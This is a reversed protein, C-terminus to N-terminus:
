IDLPQVPGWVSDNEDEGLYDFIIVSIVPTVEELRFWVGRSSRSLVAGDEFCVAEDEIFAVRGTYVLGEKQGYM